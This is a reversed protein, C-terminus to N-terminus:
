LTDSNTWYTNIRLNSLSSDVKDLLQSPAPYNNELFRQIERLKRIYTKIQPVKSKLITTSMSNYLSIFALSSNYFNNTIPQQAM